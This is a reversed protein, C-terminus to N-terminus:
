EPDLAETFHRAVADVWYSLIPSIRHNLEPFIVLDYPKGARTMAEVIKMTASFTANVDMTGHILLLKGEIRDVLRLSSAYEYGEPNNQPLDMYPEIPSSWHDYLDAVPYTAVGAKYFDPALVLARITMYGGWSGGFMGVRDLDLWPRDEAANELARRHDPIENRGFNRYVVDQFAKGRETTGRGDVVFVVFGLQAFAQPLIGGTFTRPTQVIQPGNYIFDLVPYRQNPDFDYPKFLVGYLDTTDDAAKVIFEEPASWRLGELADTNAETVTTVLSGDARKLDVRPPREVSSHSDLFYAGDPSFTAAHQGPEDTLRQFGEGDLGVRYVHTDYIREEAHATFYVWGNTEDVDVIGLVPFTGSTLRRILTGDLDYLYLHDWGDRESILLLRGDSLPRALMTWAPNAAIGKIFTPQTETLVIRSAGTAADAVMVDLRKFRRDMRSFLLETGGPLWGILHLYQDDGDGADITVQDRSFVDVIVLDQRTLPEGTRSRAWWEVEEQPKLWHVLPIKNVQREDELYLALRSGDPSWQAGGGFLSGGLRWNYFDRGSLTVQVDRGDVTSRLWFNHGKETAIWRGDPSPIEMVDADTDPFRVRAIGPKTRERQTREVSTLARVAYTDLTLRFGRDEVEFEIATEDDVFSLDAFPLGAYPPEHGLATTMAARVRESELLPETEGTAPDVVHIVSADPAGDVYWFRRGDAMWHPEITGGTVLAGFGLYKRFMEQGEPDQEQASVAAPLGLVGWVGLSVALLARVRIRSIPSTMRRLH